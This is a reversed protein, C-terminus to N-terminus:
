PEPSHVTQNWHPTFGRLLAPLLLPAVARVDGLLM